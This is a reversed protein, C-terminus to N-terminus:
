RREARLTRLRQTYEDADIEGHALRDALIREAGPLPDSAPPAAPSRLIQAIVFGVAALMAPLVIAFLILTWGMGMGIGYGHYMM